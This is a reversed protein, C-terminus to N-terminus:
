VPDSASSLCGFFMASYCYAPPRKKVEFGAILCNGHPLQKNQAKPEIGRSIPGIVSRAPISNSCGSRALAM